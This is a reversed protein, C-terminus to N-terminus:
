LHLIESFIIYNARINQPSPNEKLLTDLHSVPRM